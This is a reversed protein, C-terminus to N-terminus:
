DDTGGPYDSQRPDRGGPFGRARPRPFEGRRARRERAGPRRRAEPAEATLTAVHEVGETAVPIGEEFRPAYRYKRIMTIAVDNLASESSRTVTADRVYGQADITFALSVEGSLKDDIADQPYVPSARYIPAPPVSWPERAGLALCHETAREPQELAEYLEVLRKRITKEMERIPGENTKFATLSDSFHETAKEFQQRGTAWMAMHFSTLGLRVDNEQLEDAYIQHASQIYQEAFRIGDRKVLEQAIEYCQHARYLRNEHNGALWSARSFHELAERPRQPDFHVRGLQILVPVLELADSGYHDELIPLKGRLVRRSQRYDGSDNLLVAYNVALNATNVSKKGFLKSGLTYAQAAADRAKSPEEAELHQKYQQYVRQFEATDDANAASAQFLLFFTLAGTTLATVPYSM